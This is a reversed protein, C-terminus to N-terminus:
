GFIAEYRAVPRPLGVPVLLMRFSGLSAHEVTYTDQALADGARGDFLISFPERLARPRADAAAALRAKRSALNRVEVLQLEAREGAAGRVRFQSGLVGNFIADTLTDIRCNWAPRTSLVAGMVGPWAAPAQLVGLGVAARTLFRRRSSKASACM